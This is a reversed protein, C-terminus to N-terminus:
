GPPSGESPLLLYFVGLVLLFRGSYGDARPFSDPFLVLVRRSRIHKETGSIAAPHGMHRPNRSGEVGSLAPWPFGRVWATGINV